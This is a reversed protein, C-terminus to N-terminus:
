YTEINKHIKLIRLHLCNGKGSFQAQKQLLLSFNREKEGTSGTLEKVSLQM